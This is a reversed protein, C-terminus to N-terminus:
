NVKTAGTPETSDITVTGNAAVTVYEIKPSKADAIDTLKVGGVSADGTTSFTVGQTQTMKVGKYYATAGDGDLVAVSM